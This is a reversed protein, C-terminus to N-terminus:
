RDGEGQGGRRDRQDDMRDVTQVEVVGGHADGVRVSGLGGGFGGHEGPM